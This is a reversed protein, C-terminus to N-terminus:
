HRRRRSRLCSTVEVDIMVQCILSDKILIPIFEEWIKVVPLLEDTGPVEVEAGGLVGGHEPVEVKAGVMLGGQEPVEVEAGGGVGGQELVEGPNDEPM